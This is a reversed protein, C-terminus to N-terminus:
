ARSLEVPELSASGATVTQVFGEVCRWWGRFLRSSELDRVDLANWGQGSGEEIRVLVGRTDRRLGERLCKLASEKASWLLTATMAQEAVPARAMFAREEEAFYDYLFERARPQVAELDCGLLVGSAAVACFGTGGSHSLAISVPARESGVFAEPAGDPASRIELHRFEPAGATRALVSRVALKATWRGLLWDDRRKPFRLGAARAREGAALWSLDPPLDALKRTLYHLTIPDM